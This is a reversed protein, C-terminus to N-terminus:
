PSRKHIFSISSSLIRVAFGKIKLSPYKAPEM